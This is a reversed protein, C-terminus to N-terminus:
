TVEVGSHEHSEHESHQVDDGEEEEEMDEESGSIIQVEDDHGACVVCTINNNTIGLNQGGDDHGVCWM